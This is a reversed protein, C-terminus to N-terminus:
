TQKKSLHKKVKEAIQLITDQYIELPPRINTNDQM